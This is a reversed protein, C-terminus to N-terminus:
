TPPPSDAFAKFRLNACAMLMGAQLAFTRLAFESDGHMFYFFIVNALWSAALLCSLRALNDACGHRRLHRLVKLALGSIGLLFLSCFTLGPIGTNVLLGIFGNYFRGMELYERIYGYPDYEPSPVVNYNFGFGRGIWLYNPAVQWGVSRMQIRGDFTAQGDNRAISDVNIGPLISLTRQLPLSFERSFQYFFLLSGSLVLLGVFTRVPSLFRQGYMCFLLTMPVVVLLGRHGSSAAIGIISVSLPLLWVGKRSVFQGLNFRTLLLYFFAQGVIAFSQFRRFGTAQAQGEFSLSDTSLGFFYLLAWMKGGVGTSLVLDSIVFTLSLLYQWTYLRLMQQSTTPIALFLIPFISCVIQQYYVRGGGHEGGLVQLGTGHLAILLFLVAVYGAVGVLSWRYRRLQQHFDAAQHRLFFTVILGSWALLAAFEWLFPRGPFFPLILASGFSTAGVSLALKAHYPLLALWAVGGLLLVILLNGSALILSFVILGAFLAVFWLLREFQLQRAFASM